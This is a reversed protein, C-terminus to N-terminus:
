LSLRGWPWLAIPSIKHWHCWSPDFWRDESKYRLVKVVKSSRDGCSNNLHYFIIYYHTTINFDQYMRSCTHFHFHSHTINWLTMFERTEFNIVTSNNVALYISSYNQKNHQILTFSPRQCQPLFPLQPHKLVHHQPSYKSRPPVLYRPFPPSQM